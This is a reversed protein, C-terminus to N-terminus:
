WLNICKSCIEVLPLQGCQLLLARFYTCREKMESHCNTHLVLDAKDTKHFTNEPVFTGETTM